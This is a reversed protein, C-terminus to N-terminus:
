RARVPARSTVGYGYRVPDVGPRKEVGRLLLVADALDGLLEAVEDLRRARDGLQAGQELVGLDVV